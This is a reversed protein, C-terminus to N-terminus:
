LTIIRRTRTTVIAALGCLVFLTGPTPIPLIDITIGTLIGTVDKGPIDGDYVVTYGLPNGGYTLIDITTGQLLTWQEAYFDWSTVLIGEPTAYIPNGPLTWATYMGDGDAPPDSENLNYPDPIPFGSYLLPVGGNDNTGHLDLYYPDWGFIVDMASFSQNEYPDDSVAYLGISINDYQYILNNDIRLELNIEARGALTVFLMVLISVEVVYLREWHLLRAVGKMKMLM